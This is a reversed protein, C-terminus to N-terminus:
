FDRYAAIISDANGSISHIRAPINRITENLKNYNIEIEKSHAESLSDKEHLVALTRDREEILREYLDIKEHEKKIVTDKAAILQKLLDQNTNRNGKFLVILLIVVGIGLVAILINKTTLLAKM